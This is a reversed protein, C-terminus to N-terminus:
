DRERPRVTMSIAPEAEWCPVLGSETTELLREAQLQVTTEFLQEAKLQVAWEFKSRTAKM